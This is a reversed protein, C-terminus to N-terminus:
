LCWMGVVLAIAFDLLRAFRPLIASEMARREAPVAGAALVRM